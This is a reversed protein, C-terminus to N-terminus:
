GMRRAVQAGRAFDTLHRAHADRYRLPLLTSLPAGLMEQESYGFLVEAGHNFHLIEGREDVSIIADVAISLIGEFKARSARLEHEAELRRELERSLFWAGALAITASVFALVFSIRRLGGRADASATAAQALLLVGAVALVAIALLLVIRTPSFFSSTPQNM